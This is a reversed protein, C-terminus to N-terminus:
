TRALGRQHVQDAAQIRGGFAVIVDVPLQDAVHVVVLQRADAVLLDAEDELREVQQGAGGRQV